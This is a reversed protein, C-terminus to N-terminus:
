YPSFFYAKKFGNSKFTPKSRNVVMGCLTEMKNVYMEDYFWLVPLKVDLFKPQM